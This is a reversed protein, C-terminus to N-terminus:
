YVLQQTMYSKNAQVGLRVNHTMHDGSIFKTAKFDGTTRWPVHSPNGPFYGGSVVSSTSDQVAITTIDTKSLNPGMGIFSTPQAYYSFHGALVTTSNPVWNLETGSLRIDGPYWALATPP